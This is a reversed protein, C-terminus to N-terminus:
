EVTYKSIWGDMWENIWEKIWNNVKSIAMLEQKCQKRRDM